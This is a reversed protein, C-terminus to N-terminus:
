TRLFFNLIPLYKTQCAQFNHTDFYQKIPVVNQNAPYFFYDDLICIDKLTGDDNDDDACHKGWM